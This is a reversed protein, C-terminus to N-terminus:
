SNLLRSLRNTLSENPYVRNEPKKPSGEPYYYKGGRPGTYMKVKKKEGTEPDTVEEETSTEENDEDDNPKTEKPQNKQAEEERFKKRNEREKKEFRKNAGEIEEEFDVEDVLKKDINKLSKSKIDKDFQEKFAKRQEKPLESLKPNARPKGNKDFCTKLVNDYQDQLEQKKKPDKEDEIREKLDVVLKKIKNKKIKRMVAVGAIIAGLAIGGAVFAPHALIPAKTVAVKVLKSAVSVGIAGFVGAQFTAAAYRLGKEIKKTTNEHKEKSWELPDKREKKEDKTDSKAENIDELDDDDKFFEKVGSKFSNIYNKRADDDKIKDVGVEKLWDNIHDENYEDDEYDGTYAMVLQQINSVMDLEDKKLGKAENIYYTFKNM